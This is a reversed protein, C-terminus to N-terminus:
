ADNDEISEENKEALEDRLAEAMDPHFLRDIAEDTTLEDPKKKSKEPPM